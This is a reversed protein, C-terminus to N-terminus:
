IGFEFIGGCMEYTNFIVSSTDHTLKITMFNNKVDIDM